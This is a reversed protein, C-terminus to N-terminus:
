IRLSPATDEHQLTWPSSNHFWLVCIRVETESNHVTESLYGQSFYSYRISGPTHTHTHTHTLSLSLSLSLSCKNPKHVYSNLIYISEEPLKLFGKRYDQSLLYPYKEKLSWTNTAETFFSIPLERSFFELYSIVNLSSSIFLFCSILM